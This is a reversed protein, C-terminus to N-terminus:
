TREARGRKETLHAFAIAVISRVHDDALFYVITRGERRCRVLDAQKLKKLQHSVASQEMHLLEAVACVCLEASLLGYLIKMRTSDGFLKFLDSMDGLLEDSPLTERVQKLIAEHNHKM